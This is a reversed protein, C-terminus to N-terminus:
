KCLGAVAVTPIVCVPRRSRSPAEGKGPGTWSSGEQIRFLKSEVYPMPLGQEYTVAATMRMTRKREDSTMQEERGSGQEARLEAVSGDGRDAGGRVLPVGVYGLLDVAARRARGRDLRLKLCFSSYWKLEMLEGWSSCLSLMTLTRTKIFFSWAANWCRGLCRRRPETRCAEGHDSPRYKLGKNLKDLYASGWWSGARRVVKRACRTTQCRM